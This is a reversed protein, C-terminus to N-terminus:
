IYSVLSETRASCMCMIHIHAHTYVHSLIASEGMAYVVCMLKEWKCFAFLSKKKSIRAYLCLTYVRFDDVKEGMRYTPLAISDIDM